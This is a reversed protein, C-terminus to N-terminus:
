QSDSCRDCEPLIGRGTRTDWRCSSHVSDRNLKFGPSLLLWMVCVDYLTNYHMQLHCICVEQFTATGSAPIFEQSVDGDGSIEWTVEVVGLNGLTRVLGLRVTDGENVIVSHASDVLGVIGATNDNAEIVVTAVSGGDPALVAGGTPDSLSVTIHEDREPLTDEFIILSVTRQTTAEDFTM